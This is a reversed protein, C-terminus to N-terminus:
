LSSDWGFISASFDRPRYDTLQLGLLSTTYNWKTESPRLVLPALTYNRNPFALLVSVWPPGTSWNLDLPWLLSLGWDLAAQCSPDRKSLMKTRSLSKLQHVPGVSVLPVIQKIWTLSEFIWRMPFCGWLGGGGSHSWTYPCRMAWDLQCLILRCFWQLLM